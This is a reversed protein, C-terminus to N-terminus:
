SYLNSDYAVDNDDEVEEDEGDDDDLRVCKKQTTKTSSTIAFSFLQLLLRLTYTLWFLDATPCSVFSLTFSWLLWLWLCQAIGIALLIKMPDTAHIPPCKSLCKSFFRKEESYFLRQTHTHELNICKLVKNVAESILTLLTSGQMPLSVFLFKFNLRKRKLTFFFNSTHKLAM